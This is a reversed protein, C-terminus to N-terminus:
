PPYHPFRSVTESVGPQLEQVIRTVTKMPREHGEEVPLHPAWPYRSPTM